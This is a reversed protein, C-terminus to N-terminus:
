FGSMQTNIRNRSEFVVRTHLKLWNQSADM